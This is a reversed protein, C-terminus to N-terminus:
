AISTLPTFLDDAAGGDALARAAAIADDIRAQCFGAHAMLTRAKDIVAAEDLPNDPDGLADDVGAGVRRGDTLTLTVRAGYHAPYAASLAEHAHVQVRKRLGAVPERALAKPAFDALTPPGSALCVAAAHQLSFKAELETEPEARDCFKVADAYTAVVISAIASADFDAGLRGRAALTADITPHAHRCAPWLKFSTDYILWPGHPDATVADPTADPAMAAFFGQEGELIHQPGTLGNAAMVASALGDRAACATHWQKTMVPEHRCRWLGGATSGANGLASVFQDENLGILWGAGAAAGFPGLSGTNHWNAYHAPGVSRGVRILAEYGRVIAELVAEGRAARAAAAALVAPIVVPGPHLISTRHVDDMELVNGLAGNAFAAGLPAVTRATGVIACRGGGALSIDARFQHGVTTAAGAAACGLWDIVHLVARDRDASDIPRATIAHLQRTLSAPM